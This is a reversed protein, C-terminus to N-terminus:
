FSEPPKGNLVSIIRQGKCTPCEWPGRKLAEHYAEMPNEPNWPVKGRGECVPCRQFLDADPSPPLVPTLLRTGEPFPPCGYIPTIGGYGHIPCAQSSSEVTTCTCRMTSRRTIAM